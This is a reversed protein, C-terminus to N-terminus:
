LRGRVARLNAPKVSLLAGDRELEVVWRGARPDGEEETEEARVVTAQALGVPRMEWGQGHAFSCRAARVLKGNHYAANTLGVVEVQGGAELEAGGQAREAGGGGTPAAEGTEEEVLQAGAEATLDAALEVQSAM